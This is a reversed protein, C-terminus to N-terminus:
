VDGQDWGKEYPLLIIVSTGIGQESEIRLGYQKGFLRKIRGDINKLGIGKAKRKSM